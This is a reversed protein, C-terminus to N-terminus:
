TAATMTMGAGVGSGVVGGVGFPGLALLLHGAVLMETMQKGTELEILVDQLDGDMGAALGGGSEWLAIV